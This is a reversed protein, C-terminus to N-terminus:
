CRRLSSDVSFRVREALAGLAGDLLTRKKLHDQEHGPAEEQLFAVDRCVLRSPGPPSTLLRRPPYVHYQDKEDLVVSDTSSVPSPPRSIPSRPGDFCDM